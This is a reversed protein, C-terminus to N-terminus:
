REPKPWDSPSVLARLEDVLAIQEEPALDTVRRVGSRDLRRQILAIGQKVVPKEPALETGLLRRGLTRLYGSLTQRLRTPM